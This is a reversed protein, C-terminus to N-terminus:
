PVRSATKFNIYHVVSVAHSTHRMYCSHYRKGLLLSVTLFHV